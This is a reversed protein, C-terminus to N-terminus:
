PRCFLHPCSLLTLLIALTKFIWPASSFLPYTAQYLFAQNDPPLIQMQTVISFVAWAALGVVAILQIITNKNLYFFM